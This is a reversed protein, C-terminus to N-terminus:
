KSFRYFQIKAVQKWDETNEM